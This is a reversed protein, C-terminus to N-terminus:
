SEKSSLRFSQQRMADSRGLPVGPSRTPPKEDEMQFPAGDFADSREQKQRERQARSHLEATLLDVDAYKMVAALNLMSVQDPTVRGLVVLAAIPDGKFRLTIEWVTSPPVGSSIWRQVTTHSVGVARAIGRATQHGTVTRLWRAWKNDGCM